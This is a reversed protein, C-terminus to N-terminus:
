TLKSSGGETVEFRLFGDDMMVADGPKLADFLEQHPIPIIGEPADEGLTVAVEDGFGLKLSGGAIKGVRLKPGQMDSIIPVHRGLEAAVQRVTAFRAAHEEHSGHSFNMRFATAGAQILARARHPSESAPGMTALIKTTVPSQPQM